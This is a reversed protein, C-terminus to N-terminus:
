IVYKTCSKDMKTYYIIFLISLVIIHYIKKSRFWLYVIVAYIFLLYPIFYQGYEFLARIVRKSSLSGPQSFFLATSNPLENELKRTNYINKFINEENDIEIFNFKKCLRNVVVQDDNCKKSLIEKLLQKLYKVYGMYMGCNAINVGCTPFVFRELGYFPSEVDKSFLVKSKKNMFRRVAEQSTGNITSDFGDLYIIIKNDPLDKIYEYVLESKMQFGTWKQGFGLVKIDIKQKNNLLQKLLGEEHTAVTIIEANM